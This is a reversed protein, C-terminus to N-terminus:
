NAVAGCPLPLGWFSLASHNKGTVAHMPNPVTSPFGANGAPYGIQNGAVGQAPDGYIRPLGPKQSVFGICVQTNATLPVIKGADLSNATTVSTLAQNYTYTRSDDFETSLYEYGVSLPLAMVNPRPQPIATRYPAEMGHRYTQPVTAIQAGGESLLLPIALRNAANVPCVPTLKGDSNVYVVRGNPLATYDDELPAHYQTQYTSTATPGSFM